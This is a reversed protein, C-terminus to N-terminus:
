TAGGRVLDGALEQARWELRRLIADLHAREGDALSRDLAQEFALARPVLDQYVRRGRASLALFAERMDDDNPLWDM